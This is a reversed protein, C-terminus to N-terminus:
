GKQMSIGNKEPEFLSPPCELWEYSFAEPGAEGSLNQSFCLTRIVAREKRIVQKVTDMKKKSKRLYMAFTEIKPQVIKDANTTTAVNMGGLGLLQCIGPYNSCSDSRLILMMDTYMSWLHATVGLGKEFDEWLSEPSELCKMVEEM